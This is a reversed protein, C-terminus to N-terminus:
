TLKKLEYGMRNCMKTLKEMFYGDEVTSGRKAKDVACRMSIMYCDLAEVNDKVKSM